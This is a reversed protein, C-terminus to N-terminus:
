LSRPKRMMSANRWLPKQNKRIHPARSGMALASAIKISEDSDKDDLLGQLAKNIEESQDGTAGLALVAKEQIEADQTSGIIQLLRGAIKVSTREPLVNIVDLSAIIVDPDDHEITQEVATWSRKDGKGQVELGALCTLALPTDSSGACTVLFEVLKDQGKGQDSLAKVIARRTKSDSYKSYLYILDAVFSDSGSGFEEFYSLLTLRDEERETSKLAKLLADHVVESNDKRVILARVVTNRLSPDNNFRDLPVM